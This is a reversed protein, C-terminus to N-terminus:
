SGAPLVDLIVRKRTLASMVPAVATRMEPNV